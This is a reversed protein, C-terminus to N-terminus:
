SMEAAITILNSITSSEYVNKTSFKFLKLKEMVRWNARLIHSNKKKM